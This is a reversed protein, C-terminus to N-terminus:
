VSRRSFGRNLAARDQNHRRGGCRQCTRRTHHSSHARGALDGQICCRGPDREYLLRGGTIGFCGRRCAGGHSALASLSEKEPVPTRGAARTLIVTQSVGPLTYEAGLSAAAGFFSSVGPCVAFPVGAAKLADMQERHAGYVSPDGTHLRVVRKGAKAAPILIDLVENLDLRASDHIEAEPKCRRLLAPNVLSGAYVVVDAEELLAAGRLTLLDEAGPGAGVFYVKGAEM